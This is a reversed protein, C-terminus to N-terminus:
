YRQFSNDEKKAKELDTAAKAPQGMLQYLSARARYLRASPDSDIANSYDRLAEPYKKQKIYLSARRAMAEDDAPNRALLKTLEDIADQYQGFREMCAILSMVNSDSNRQKISNRWAEITEKRRNLKELWPAKTRYYSESRLGTGYKLREEHYKLAKEYDGLNSYAISLQRYCSDPDPMKVELGKQAFTIAKKYDGQLNYYEAWIRYVRGSQPDLKMATELEQKILQSNHATEGPDDMYCKALLAHMGGTANPRQCGPVLIRKADELHETNVLHAALDEIDKITKIKYTPPASMAIQTATGQVILISAAIIIARVKM